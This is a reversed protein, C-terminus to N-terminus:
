QTIQESWNLEPIDTKTMNMYGKLINRAISEADYHKQAIAIYKSHNDALADVFGSIGGRSHVMPDIIDPYKDSLDIMVLKMQVKVEDTFPITFTEKIYNEQSKFYRM